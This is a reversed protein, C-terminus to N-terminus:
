LCSVNRLKKISQGGIGILSGAHSSHILLKLEIQNDNEPSKELLLQSIDDLISDVSESDTALCVVREPGNGTDPVSFISSRFTERLRRINNGGKGILAGAERRRVLLRVQITRQNSNSNSGSSSRKTNTKLEANSISSIDDAQEKQTEATASISGPSLSNCCSKSGDKDSSEDLIMSDSGCSRTACVLQVSDSGNSPNDCESLRLNDSDEEPSLALMPHKLPLREDIESKVLVTQNSELLFKSNTPEEQQNTQEERQLELKQSSSQKYVLQASNQIDSSAVFTEPMM